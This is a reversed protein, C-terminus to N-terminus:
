VTITKPLSPPKAVLAAIVSGRKRGAGTKAAKNNGHGFDSGDRHQVSLPIFDRAEAGRLRATGSGVTPILIHNYM